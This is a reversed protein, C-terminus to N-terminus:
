LIKVEILADKNKSRVLAALLVNEPVLDGENLHYSLVRLFSDAVEAANPDKSNLYEEMKCLIRRAERLNRINERRM